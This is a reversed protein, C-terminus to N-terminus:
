RQTKGMPLVGLLSGVPGSVEDALAAELEASLRGSASAIMLPSVGIWPKEATVSYRFHLVSTADAGKIKRVRSPGNVDFSYRWNAEGPSGKVEVSSGPLLAIEGDPSVDILFIIQGRSILSHGVLGLFDPTLVAQIASSSESQVEAQSFSRGILGAAMELAATKLPDAAGGGSAKQLLSQIVEDAFGRKEIKPQKRLPWM